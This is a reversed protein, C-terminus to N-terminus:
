KAAFADIAKRVENSWDPKVPGGYYNLRKLERAVETRTSPTWRALSENVDKIADPNALKYAGLLLVAARPHDAPGGKGQDLMHALNIMGWSERNDAARGLWERAKGYDRQVGSGDRYLVGMGNMASANNHELAKEFL